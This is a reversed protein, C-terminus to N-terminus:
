MNMEETLFVRQLLDFRIGLTKPTCTATSVAGHASRLSGVWIEHGLESRGESVWAFPLCLEQQEQGPGM